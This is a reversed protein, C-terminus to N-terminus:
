TVNPTTTPNLLATYKTILNNYTVTKDITQGLLRAQDELRKLQAKARDMILAQQQEERDLIAGQIVGTHVVNVKIAAMDIAQAAVGVTSTLATASTGVTGVLSVLADNTSSILTAM